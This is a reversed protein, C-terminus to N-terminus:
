RSSTLRPWSRVSTRMRSRSIQDARTAPQDLAKRQEISVRESRDVGSGRELRRTDHPQAGRCRAPEYLRRAEFRRTLSRV